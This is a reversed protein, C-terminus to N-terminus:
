RHCCKKKDLSIVFSKYGQGQHVKTCMLQRWIVPIEPQTYFVNKVRPTWVFCLLPVKKNIFSLYYVARDFVWWVLAIVLPSSYGRMASQWPICTNSRSFPWHSPWPWTQARRDSISTAIITTRSYSRFRDLFSFHIALTINTIFVQCQSLDIHLDLDPIHTTIQLVLWLSHQTYIHFFDTM